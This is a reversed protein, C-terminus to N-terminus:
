IGQLYVDELFKIEFETGAPISIHSGKAFLGFVPSGIINVGYVLVGSVATFPTLILTWPNQSLKSTGRMAKKYFKAGPQMSKAVGKFYGRQGKINNLFIKKHGAKTIKAHVSYTRGRFVMSEVMIVVLGGNGSIQPTHSNTVVAFFKTGAPITVYRQGVPKLSTFSIRTCEPSYDSIKASSKVRFKTGKKIKVATFDDKSVQSGPLNKIVKGSSHSPEISPASKPPTSTKSSQSSPVKSPQATKPLPPLNDQEIQSANYHKRIEEDVSLDLELAIAPASIILITLITCIIKNLYNM